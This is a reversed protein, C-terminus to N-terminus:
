AGLRASNLVGDFAGELGMASLVRRELADVNDMALSVKTGRARLRAVLPLADPDILTWRACGVRAEDRVFAASLGIAEAVRGFYGEADERGLLRDDIGETRWLVQFAAFRSPLPHM